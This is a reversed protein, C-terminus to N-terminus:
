QKVCRIKHWYWTSKWVRTRYGIQFDPVKINGNRTNTQKNTKVNEIFTCLMKQDYGGRGGGEM